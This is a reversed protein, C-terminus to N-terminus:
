WQDFRHERAGIDEPVFVGDGLSKVIDDPVVELRCSWDGEEAIRWDKSVEIKVRKSSRLSMRRESVESFCEKKTICSPEVIVRWVKCSNRPVIATSATSQVGIYRLKGHGSKSPVKNTLRNKFAIGLVDVYIPDPLSPSWSKDSKRRRSNTQPSPTHQAPQPPPIPALPPPPIPFAGPNFSINHVGRNQAGSRAQDSRSNLLNLYTLNPLKSVGEVLQSFYVPDYVVPLALIRLNWFGDFFVKPSPVYRFCQPSVVPLTSLVLRELGWGESENGQLDHIARFPQPLIHKEKKAPRSIEAGETGGLSIPLTVNPAPYIEDYDSDIDTEDWDETDEDDYNHDLFNDVTPYGFGYSWRHSVMCSVELARFNRCIGEPGFQKIFKHFRPFGIDDFMHLRRLTVLKNDEWRRLLDMGDSCLDISIDQLESADLSKVVAEIGKQQFAVDRLKLTQLKMKPTQRRGQPVPPSRFLMALVDPEMPEMEVLRGIFGQSLNFEFHRLTNWSVSSILRGYDIIQDFDGCNLAKITTFNNHIFPIPNNCLPILNHAHFSDQEISLKTDGFLEISRLTNFRAINASIREPLYRCIRWVFSELGEVSWLLADLAEIFDTHERVNEFSVPDYLHWEAEDKFNWWGHIAIERIYYVGPRRPVKKALTNPKANLRKPTLKSQAKSKRLVPKIATIFDDEVDDDEIAWQPIEYSGDPVLAKITDTTQEWSSVGTFRIRYSKYLTPLVLAHLTQCTQSLNALSRQSLSSLEEVIQDFIEKPLTEIGPKPLMTTTFDM